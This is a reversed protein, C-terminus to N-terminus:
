SKRGNCKGLALLNSFGLSKTLAIQVMGLEM